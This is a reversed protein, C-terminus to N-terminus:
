GDFGTLTAGIRSLFREFTPTVYFPGLQIPSTAPPTNEPIQVTSVQAVCPVVRLLLVAMTLCAVPWRRDVTSSLRLWAGNSRM